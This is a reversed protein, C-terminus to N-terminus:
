LLEAYRISVGGWSVGRGFCDRPSGQGGQRPSVSGRDALGSFSGEDEDVLADHYHVYNSSTPQDAEVAVATSSSAVPAPGPDDALPKQGGDNVSPDHEAAAHIPSRNGNLEIGGPIGGAWNQRDTM